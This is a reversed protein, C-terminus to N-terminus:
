KNHQNQHQRNLVVPAAVQATRAARVRAQFQHLRHRRVAAAQAAQAQRAQHRVEVPSRRVARVATPVAAVPSMRYTQAHQGSNYRLRVADFASEASKTPQTVRVQRKQATYRSDRLQTSTDCCTATVCSTVLLAWIIPLLVAPVTTVANLTHRLRSLSLRSALGAPTSM